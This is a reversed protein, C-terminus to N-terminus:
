GRNAGMVKGVEAFGEQRKRRQCLREIMAHLEQGEECESWHCREGAAEATDAVLTEGPRLHAEALSADNPARIAFTRRGHGIVHREVTLWRDPGRRETAATVIESGSALRNEESAIRRLESVARQPDCKGKVMRTFEAAVDKDWRKDLSRAISLAARAFDVWISDVTKTQSM